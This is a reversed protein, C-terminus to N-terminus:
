VGQLTESEIIFPINIESFMGQEIAFRHVGSAMPHEALSEDVVIEVLIREFKKLAYYYDRFWLIKHNSVWQDCHELYEATAADRYIPKCVDWAQDMIFLLDQLMLFAKYNFDRKFDVSLYDDISKNTDANENLFYGLIWKVGQHPCKEFEYSFPMECFESLFEPVIVSSRKRIDDLTADVEKQNSKVFALTQVKLSAKLSNAQNESAGKLGFIEKRQLRLEANQLLVTVILWLFALLGAFGALSDGIVNLPESLLGKTYSLYSFWSVIIITVLSAIFLLINSFLNSEDSKNINM